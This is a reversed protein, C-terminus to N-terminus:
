VGGTLDRIRAELDDITKAVHAHIHLQPPQLPNKGKLLLSKDVAIAAVTMAQLSSADGLTDASQALANGAHTIFAKALQGKVAELWIEDRQLNKAAQAKIAEIDKFQGRNLNLMRRITKGSYGALLLATSALVKEASTPLKKEAM